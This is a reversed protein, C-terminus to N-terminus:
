ETAQPQGGANQAHPLADQIFEAFDTNSMTKALADLAFMGLASLSKPDLQDATQQLLQENMAIQKYNPM